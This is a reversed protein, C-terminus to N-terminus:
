LYSWAVVFQGHLFDGGEEDFGILYVDESEIYLGKYSKGKVDTFQIPVNEKPNTM